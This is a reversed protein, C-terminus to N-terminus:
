WLPFSTSVLQRSPSQIGSLCTPLGGFFSPHDTPNIICKSVRDLIKDATSSDLSVKKRLGLLQLDKTSLLETSGRAEGQMVQPGPLCCKNSRKFTFSSLLGAATFEQQVDIQAKSSGNSKQAAEISTGM